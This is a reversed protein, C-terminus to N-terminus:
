TSNSNIRGLENLQKETLLSRVVTFLSGDCFGCKPDCLDTITRYVCRRCYVERVKMNKHDEINSYPPKTPNSIMKMLDSPYITM